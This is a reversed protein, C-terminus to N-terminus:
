EEWAFVESAASRAKGHHTFTCMATPPAVRMFIAFLSVTAVAQCITDMAVWGFVVDTRDWARDALGFAIWVAGPIANATFAMRRPGLRSSVFGAAISACFGLLIGVGGTVTACREQSWGRVDILHVTMVVALTQPLVKMAFAGVAARLAPTRTMARALMIWPRRHGLTRCRGPDVLPGGAWKFRWPPVDMPVLSGIAGTTAGHAALHAALSVTVFGFPLGQSLYM